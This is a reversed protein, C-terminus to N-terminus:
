DARAIPIYNPSGSFLAAIGNFRANATKLYGSRLFVM